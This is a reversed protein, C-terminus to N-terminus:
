QLSIILSIRFRGIFNKSMRQKFIHLILYLSHSQAICFIIALIVINHTCVCVCVYVYGTMPLCSLVCMLNEPDDYSKIQKLDLSEDRGLLCFFLNSFLVLVFFTNSTDNLTWRDAVPLLKNERNSTLM